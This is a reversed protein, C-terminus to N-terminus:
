DAKRLTVEVSKFGPTRSQSDVERPVLVNAEPYYVMLNGRKIDFARIKVGNMTGTETVLDVRSNERLGERAIDDPHMMVIWRETQERYVDEEHFIISNFQGESRVSTLRYSTAAAPLPV